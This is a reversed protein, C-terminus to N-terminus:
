AKKNANVLGAPDQAHNKPSAKSAGNYRKYKEM